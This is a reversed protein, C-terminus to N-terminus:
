FHAVSVSEMSNQVRDGWRKDCKFIAIIILRLGRIDDDEQSAKAVSKKGNRINTM